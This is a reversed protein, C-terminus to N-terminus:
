YVQLVDQLLRACAPLQRSPHFPHQPHDEATSPQLAFGASLLEERLIKESSEPLCGARGELPKKQLCPLLLQLPLLCLQRCHREPAGSLWRQLLIQRPTQLLLQQQLEPLSSAELLSCCCDASSSLSPEHRQQLQQPALLTPHIPLPVSPQQPQLPPIGRAAEEAKQRM